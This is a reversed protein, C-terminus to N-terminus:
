LDFISENLKNTNLYDSYKNREISTLCEPNNLLFFMLKLDKQFEMYMKHTYNENLSKLGQKVFNVAQDIM